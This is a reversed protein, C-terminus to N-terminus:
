RSLKAECRRREPDHSSEVVRAGSGEVVGLAVGCLLEPHDPLVLPCPCASLRLTDGTIRADFGLRELARPLDGCRCGWERAAAEVPENRDVAMALVEALGRFDATPLEYGEALRYRIPPRGRGAPTAREGEILGARELAAVHPKATNLHVGAADALEQLTSGPREGLHDLIRRRAPDAVSEFTTPSM